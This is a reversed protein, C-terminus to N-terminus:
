KYFILLFGNGFLVTQFIFRGYRSLKMTLIIEYVNHKVYFALSNCLGFSVLKNKEKLKCGIGSISIITIDDTVVFTTWDSCGNFPTNNTATIAYWKMTVRGRWICKIINTVISLIYDIPLMYTVNLYFKLCVMLTSEQGTQQNIM